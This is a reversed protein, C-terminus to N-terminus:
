PNRDSFESKAFITSSDPKVKTPGFGSFILRIPSLTEAFLAIILAPTGTTGPLSPCIESLLSALFIAEFIPYGTIILAAPPPPPLPM